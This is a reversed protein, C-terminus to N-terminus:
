LYISGLSGLYLKLVTLWIKELMNFNNPSLPFVLQGLNIAENMQSVELTLFGQSRWTCGLEGETWTKVSRGAKEPM